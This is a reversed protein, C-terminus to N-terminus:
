VYGIPEQGRRMSDVIEALDLRVHREEVIQLRLERNEMMHDYILGGQMEVQAGRICKADPGREISDGLTEIGCLGIRGRNDGYDLGGVEDKTTPGEDEADKSESDPDSCEEVEEKDDEEEDDEVLESTGQSRKRSPLDPPSSSPSSKYSSRFRKCFALNSMAAVKAISTYLGPSMAPLVHMAM